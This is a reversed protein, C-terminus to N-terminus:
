NYHKQYFKSYSILYVHKLSKLMLNIYIHVHRGRNVKVKVRVSRKGHTRILLMKKM